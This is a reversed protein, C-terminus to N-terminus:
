GRGFCHVCSRNGCGFAGEHAGPPPRHLEGPMGTDREGMLRSGALSRGKATLVHRADAYGEAAASEWMGRLANDEEDEVNPEWADLIALIRGLAERGNM